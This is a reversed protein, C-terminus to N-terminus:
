HKDSHADTFVERLQAIKEKQAQTLSPAPHHKWEARKFNANVMEDIADMRAPTDKNNM